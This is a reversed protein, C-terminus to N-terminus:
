FFLSHAHHQTPPENRAEPFRRRMKTSWRNRWCTLDLQAQYHLTSTITAALGVMETVTGPTKPIASGAPAIADHGYLAVGACLLAAAKLAAKTITM